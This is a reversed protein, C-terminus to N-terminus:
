EKMSFYAKISLGVTHWSSYQARSHLTILLDSVASARKEPNNKFNWSSRQAKPITSIPESLPKSKDFTVCCTPPLTLSGIWTELWGYAGWPGEEPCPLLGKMQGPAPPRLWNLSLETTVIQMKIYFQQLYCYTSFYSLSIAKTNM